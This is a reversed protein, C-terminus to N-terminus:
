EKRAAEILVLRAKRPYGMRLHDLADTIAELLRDREALVCTPCRYPGTEPPDRFCGIAVGCKCKIELRNLGARQVSLDDSM